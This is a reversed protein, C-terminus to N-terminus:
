LPRGRASEILSPKFCQGQKIPLQEKLYDSDVSALGNLHIDGFVVEPSNAVSLTVEALNTSTELVVQYQTDIRHLCHHKEIYRHLRAKAELVDEARLIQKPQLGIEDLPVEINHPLVLEVHKIQYANGPAVTYTLNRGDLETTIEADYYGESFLRETLIEKQYRTVRLPASLHQLYFNTERQQSLEQRLLSQLEKDTPVSVKYRYSSLPQKDSASDALCTSHYFLILAMLFFQFVVSLLRNGSL